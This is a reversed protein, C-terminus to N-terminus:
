GCHYEAYFIHILSLSEAETVYALVSGEASVRLAKHKMWEAFDIYDQVCSQSGTAEQLLIM